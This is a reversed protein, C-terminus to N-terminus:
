SRRHRRRLAIALAGCALILAYTQPEPVATVEYFGDGDVLFYGTGFGDFIIESQDFVSSFDGPEGAFLIQDPGGGALPTGSWNAFTVTSGDSLQVPSAGFILQVNDSSGFDITVNEGVGGAFTISQIHQVTTVGTTANITVDRAGGGTRNNTWIRNGEINVIFRVLDPNAGNSILIEQGVALGTTDALTIYNAYQQTAAGSEFYAAGATRGNITFTTGGHMVLDTSPSFYDEGSNSQQNAYVNFDVAIGGAQVTTTGTNTSDSQFTQVGSGIKTVNLAGAGVDTLQGLFSANTNDSGITLTSATAAGNRIQQKWAENQMNNQYIANLSNLSQNFGNLAFYSTHGGEGDAVLNLDGSTLQNDAGLTVSRVGGSTATTIISLQGGISGSPGLDLAFNGGNSGTLTLDSNVNLIGTYTFRDAFITLPDAATINNSMAQDPVLDGPPGSPNTTRTDIVPNTAGDAVFHLTGGTLTFDPRPATDSGQLNIDLKNLTFPSSIDNNSSLVDGASFVSNILITTDSASVPTADWGPDNPADSWNTVGNTGNFTFTVAQASATTLLTVCFFSKGIKTIDM